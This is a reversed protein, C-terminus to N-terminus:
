FGGGLLQRVEELNGVKAAALLEGEDEKKEVVQQIENLNAQEIQANRENQDKESDVLLPIISISPL